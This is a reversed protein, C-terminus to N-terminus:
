LPLVFREVTRLRSVSATRDDAESQSSLALAGSRTWVQSAEQDSAELAHVLAAEANEWRAAVQEPTAGDRIQKLLALAAELADLAQWLPEPVAAFWPRLPEGAPAALAAAADSVAQNEAQLDTGLLALAADAANLQAETREPHAILAASLAKQYKAYASSRAQQASTLASLLGLANERAVRDIDRMARREADSVFGTTRVALSQLQAIAAAVLPASASVRTLEVLARAHADALAPVLDVKRTSSELWTKQALAAATTISARAELEFAVLARRARVATLFDKTPDANGPFDGAVASRAGAEFAVLAAAATAPLDVLPAVRLSGALEGRQAQLPTLRTREADAAALADVLASVRAQASSRLTQAARAAGEAQVQTAQAARLSALAQYMEALLPAGDAPMAIESLAKRAADLAQQAQQAAKVAATIAANKALEDAAASALASKADTLASGVATVRATFYDLLTASM